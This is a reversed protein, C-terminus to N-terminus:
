CLLNVEGWEPWQRSCKAPTSRGTGM